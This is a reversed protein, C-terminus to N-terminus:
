PQQREERVAIARLGFRRLAVKLLGRLSHVADRGAAAQLTLQFVVPRPAAKAAQTAAPQGTHVM